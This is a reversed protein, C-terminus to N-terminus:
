KKSLYEFHDPLCISYLFLFSSGFVIVTQMLFFIIVRPAFMCIM